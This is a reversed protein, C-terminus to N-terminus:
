SGQGFLKPLVKALDIAIGIRYFDRDPQNLPLVFVSPSPVIVAGAAPTGSGSSIPTSTLILPALNANRRLRNSASLFVYFDTKPIHFIANSKVVFHRMEGGTIAQDQGLTFDIVTRNCDDTLLSSSNEACSAKSGDRSFRNILRVGAVWKLLFSSRDIPSFAVNTIQTGSATTTTTTGNSTAVTSTPVSSVVCAVPSTSTTSTSSGSMAVTTTTTVSGSGPLSPNYKSGTGFRIQLQSCENTGYAPVAYAVTASQSSITTTAGFGVIPGFTFAHGQHFDKEYGTMYDVAYGVSSLTSATVAGAPDTATTVINSTDGTTPSGLLRLQLWASGYPQYLPGHAFFEVFGDTQNDQSSLASQEVGGVVTYGWHCDNFGTDICGESGDSFKAPTSAPAAVSVAAIPVVNGGHMVIGCLFVGPDLKNQLTLTTPSVVALLNGAAPVLPVPTAFLNCQAASPASFLAVADGANATAGTIVNVVLDTSSPVPSISPPAAPAVGVAIPPIAITTGAHGINGCIFLTPALKSKLILKTPSTSALVNGLLPVLPVPTAAATCAAATSASFIAVSDGATAGGGTTLFIASDAATPAPSINQAGATIPAVLCVVFFLFRRVLCVGSSSKSLLFVVDPGPLHNQFLRLIM